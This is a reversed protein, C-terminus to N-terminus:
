KLKIYTASVYGYGNKYKIKYWNNKSEVIEVEMGKPITGIKTYSTGYGSRVNLSDATVLGKKVTSIVTDDLSSGNKSIYDSSVYGVKSGSYKIKYWSGVTDLIEVEMGKSISGIKSYTTGAGSRVNLRNATVKGKITSSTNTNTNGNNNSNNIEKIYTASVYGSKSGNYKIKYWGNVKDLLEVKDGKNLKGVVSYSTGRGNRVNLGNTTVEGLKSETSPKDTNSNGSNGNNHTDTNVYSASIYGYGNSYKIKYWGNSESVVEVKAGKSLKGIVGYTTGVGSRINLSNATVVGTKIVTVDDNSSPPRINNDNNLKINDRLYKEIGKVIGNALKEQYKADALKPSETPSSIFGSEVLTSPMKSERLVGLNASKVGRSRAGTESVMGNLNAESLSKHSSKNKHYFTEIGDANGSSASNQHISVFIDAGYNNAMRARESLSLYVDKTRSMKVNIGKSKLKSEVKKAIQLNLEDELNGFGSAGNDHGGHGPDVFVKYYGRNVTSIKTNIDMVMRADNNNSVYVEVIHVKKGLEASLFVTGESLPYLVGEENIKVTTTNSMEWSAKGLEFTEGKKLSIGNEVIVDDNKDSYKDLVELFEKEIDSSDANVVDVNGMLSLTSVVGLMLASKLDKVDKKGM